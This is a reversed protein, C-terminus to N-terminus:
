DMRRNHYTLGCTPGQHAGPVWSAYDKVEPFECYLLAGGVPRLWTSYQLLFGPVSQVALFLILRETMDLEKGGWPSYGM